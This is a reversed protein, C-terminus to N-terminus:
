SCNEWTVLTLMWNFIRLILYQRLYKHGPLLIRNSQHHFLQDQTTPITWSPQVNDKRRMLDNTWLHRYTILYSTETQSPLSLTRHNLTTWGDIICEEHQVNYEQVHHVVDVIVLMRMSLMLQTIGIWGIKKLSMIEWWLLM